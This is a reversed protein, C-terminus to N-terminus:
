KAEMDNVFSAICHHDVIPVIVGIVGIDVFCGWRRLDNFVFLGHFLHRRFNLHLCQVPVGFTTPDFRNIVNWGEVRNYSM